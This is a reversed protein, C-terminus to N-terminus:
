TSGPFASGSSQSVPSPRIPAVEVMDVRSVAGGDGRAARLEMGDVLGPYKGGM